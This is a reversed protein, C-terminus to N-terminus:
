GAISARVGVLQANFCGINLFFWSVSIFRLTMSLPYNIVGNEIVYDLLLLNSVPLVSKFNNRKSRNFQWDSMPFNHARGAGDPKLFDPPSKNSQFGIAIFLADLFVVSSFGVIFFWVSPFDSQSFDSWLFDALPLTHKFYAYLSWLLRTAILLTDLVHSTLFDDKWFRRKM